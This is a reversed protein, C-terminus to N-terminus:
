SGYRNDVRQYKFENPKEAGVLREYHSRQEDTLVDLMKTFTVTRSENVLVEFAVMENEVANEHGKSLDSIQSKQDGSLSLKQELEPAGLGLSHRHKALWLQLELQMVRNFQSPTIASGLGAPMTAEGKLISAIREDPKGGVAPCYEKIDHIYEQLQPSNEKDIDCYKWLEEYDFVLYLLGPLVDPLVRGTDKMYKQRKQAVQEHSEGPIVSGLGQMGMVLIGFRHKLRFWPVPKGVLQKYLTIQNENLLKLLEAEHRTLLQELNDLFKQEILGKSSGLEKSLQALRAVQENTLGLKESLAPYQLFAVDDVNNRNHLDLVYRARQYLVLSMTEPNIQAFIDATEQETFEQLQKIRAAADISGLRTLEHLSVLFERRKQGCHVLYAQLDPDVFGLEEEMEKAQDVVAARNAKIWNDPHDVIQFAQGFCNNTGLLLGPIHLGLACLVLFKFGGDVTKM